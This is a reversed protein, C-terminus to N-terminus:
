IALPCFWNEVKKLDRVPSKSHKMQSPVHRATYTITDVQPLVYFGNSINSVLWEALACWETFFATNLGHEYKWPPSEQLCRRLTPRATKAWNETQITYWRNRCNGPINFLFVKLLGGTSAAHVHWPKRMSAWDYPYMHLICAMFSNCALRSASLALLKWIIHSYWQHKKRHNVWIMPFIPLVM